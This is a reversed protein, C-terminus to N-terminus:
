CIIFNGNKKRFLMVSYGDTVVEWKSWWHEKIEKIYFLGGNGDEFATKIFRVKM